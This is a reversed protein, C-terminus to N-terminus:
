SIKSKKNRICVRRKHQAWGPGFPGWLDQFRPAKLAKILRQPARNSEELAKILGKLTKFLSGVQIKRARLGRFRM